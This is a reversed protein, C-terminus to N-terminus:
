ERTPVLSYKGDVLMFPGGAENMRYIIQNKPLMERCVYYTGMNLTPLGCHNCPISTFLKDKKKM